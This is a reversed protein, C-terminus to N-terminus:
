LSVSKFYWKRLYASPFNVMTWTSTHKPYHYRAGKTWLQPAPFTGGPPCQGGHQLGSNGQAWPGAHESDLVGMHGCTWTGLPGFAWFARWHAWRGLPRPTSLGLHGFLGLPVVPEHGMPEYVSVGIHENALIGM